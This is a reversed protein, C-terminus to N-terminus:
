RQGEADKADTRYPRLKSPTETTVTEMWVLREEVKRGGCGPFVLLQDLHLHLTRGAGGLGEVQGDRDDGPAHGLQHGGHQGHELGDLGLDDVRAVVARQRVGGGPEHGGQVPQPPLLDDGSDLPGLRQWTLGWSGGRRATLLATGPANQSQYNRSDTIKRAPFDVYQIFSAGLLCLLYKKFYDAPHLRSPM